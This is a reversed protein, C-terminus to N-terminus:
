RQKHLFHEQSHFVGELLLSREKDLELILGHLESDSLTRGRAYAVTLVVSAQLSFSLDIADGITDQQTAELYALINNLQERIFAYNPSSKGEAETPAELLKKLKEFETM